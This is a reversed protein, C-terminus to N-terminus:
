TVSVPPAALMPGPDEAGLERLNFPFEVTAREATLAGNEGLFFMATAVGTKPPQLLLAVRAGDPFCKRFLSQDRKQLSLESEARYYGVIRDGNRARISEGLNVVPAFAEVDITCTEGSKVSGLLIGLAEGSADALRREMSKVVSDHLRIFHPIGEEQRVNFETFTSGPAPKAEIEPVSIEPM